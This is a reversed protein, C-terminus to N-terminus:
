ISKAGRASRAARERCSARGIQFSPMVAQAHVVLEDVEVGGASADLRKRLKHARCPDHAEGAQVDGIRALLRHLDSSCVDSSWDCDFTTHRRRSAFFFSREGSTT